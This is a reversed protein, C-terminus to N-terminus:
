SAARLWMPSPVRRPNDAVWDPPEMMALARTAERGFAALQLWYGPRQLSGDPRVFEMAQFLRIGDCERWIDVCWGANMPMHVLLLGDGHDLMKRAWPDPTSYPPNCWVTGHWDQALGDDEITYYGSSPVNTHTRDVPSCVDLDYVIGLADFLWRPTYWEDGENVPTAKRAAREAAKLTTIKAPAADGLDRLATSAREQEKVTPAFITPSPKPRTAAYSKGDTGEVREPTLDRVGAKAVDQHATWVSVGLRNAIRRLSWGRELRLKLVLERRQDPTMHRRSLNLTLVHEAKSEDDMGGRTVTPWDKIGLERCARVRHHGDLIAGHEDYEVPVLVGREAIDAKLAQFEDDALDPFLQWPASADTM